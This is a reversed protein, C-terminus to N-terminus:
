KKLIRYYIESINCTHFYTDFTNYEDNDGNGTYYIQLDGFFVSYDEITYTDGNEKIVAEVLSILDLVSDGEFAHCNIEDIYTLKSKLISM